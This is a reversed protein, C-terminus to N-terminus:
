MLNDAAVNGIMFYNIHMYQMYGLECNYLNSIYCHLLKQNKEKFTPLLKIDFNHKTLVLTLALPASASKFFFDLIHM